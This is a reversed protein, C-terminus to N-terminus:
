GPFLTLALLVPGTFLIWFNAKFWRILPHLQDAAFLLCLFLGSMILSRILSFLQDRWIASKVHIPDGSIQTGNKDRRYTIHKQPKM